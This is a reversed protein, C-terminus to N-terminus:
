MRNAGSYQGAQGVRIRIQSGATVSFTINTFGGPGSTSTPDPAQYFGPGGGAQSFCTLLFNYVYWGM